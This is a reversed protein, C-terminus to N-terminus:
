VALRGLDAQLASLNIGRGDSGKSAVEGTILAWAEEAMFAWAPYSIAIPSGWTVGYLYTSDYATLVICHGGIAPGSMVDDTTWNWPPATEQVKTMMGQSVSIGVYAFNYSNIAFMLTPLDQVAVPAYASITHNYFGRQKAYALFQSLVVGDDQGGTYTMYYAGVQQDTPFSEHEATDAAAAMFGHNLGAVGCDGLTDNENMGWATVAPVNVMAPPRPLPGAAYYTLDRLGVPITGPLRGLKFDPM